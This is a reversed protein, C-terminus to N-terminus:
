HLAPERDLGSPWIFFRDFRETKRFMSDRVRGFPEESKILDVLGLDALPRLIRTYFYFEPSHIRRTETFEFPTMLGPFLVQAALDKVPYSRDSPLRALRYLSYPIFEQFQSLDPLRDLYGLNFRRIMTNFLYAYLEGAQEDILLTAAKKTVRFNKKYKRILGGVECIVRIIHLTWFDEENIVKRYAHLDRREGDTLEFVEIMRSVSDRTLNGAATMPAGEKDQIETLFKRLRRFFPITILEALSMNACLLLRADPSWWGQECLEKALRPTLGGLDELSTDHFASSASPTFAFHNGMGPRKKEMARVLDWMAALSDQLLNLRHQRDLDKEADLRNQILTLINNLVEAELVMTMGHSTYPARLLTEFLPFDPDLVDRLLWDWQIPSLFFTITTTQSM